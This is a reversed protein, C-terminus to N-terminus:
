GDRRSDRQFRRFFTTGQNVVRRPWEYFDVMLLARPM